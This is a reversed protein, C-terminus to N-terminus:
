FDDVLVVVDAGEGFSRVNLLLVVLFVYRRGFGLELLLLLVVM